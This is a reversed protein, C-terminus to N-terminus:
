SMVGRKNTNYDVKPPLLFQIYLSFSSFQMIYTHLHCNLCYIAAQWALYHGTKVERDRQVKHGLRVIPLLALKTSNQM